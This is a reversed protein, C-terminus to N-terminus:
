RDAIVDTIAFIQDGHEDFLLHYNRFHRGHM